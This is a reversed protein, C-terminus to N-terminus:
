GWIAVTLALTAALALPLPWVLCFRLAAPLTLRPLRGAFSRMLLPGLVLGVLALGLGVAPPLVGLPLTAVLVAALLAAARLDHAWGALAQEAAPLGAATGGPSIREEAGFPGWGIAAPLAALAGALALLHAVLDPDAWSGHIALAVSLSAWLAARALAGLQAERIAARAVAPGGAMLAPLLPLLFALEFAAWGWLWATGGGAPHLPWPMTALGVGALVVSGAAALGERSGLAAMGVPLGARGHLVLRYLAGAALATLLGPYLLAAIIIYLDAMSADYPRLM